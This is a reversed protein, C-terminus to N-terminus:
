WSNALAAAALAATGAGAGLVVLAAAGTRLAASRLYVGSQAGMRRLSTYAARRAVVLEALRTALAGLVCVALVGAEVLPVPGSPRHGDAFRVATVAGVAGTVALVALPTGLRWSDTQLARGALMRVIQPRGAALLGGTAHLLVPVAVAIGLVAVVWGALVAAHSGNTRLGVLEMVTGAVPLTLALVLLLTSPRRQTLDAGDSPLLDASRVATAAALGGLLPVLAILTFTGAAPLNAHTGLDPDLGTGPNLELWHARLVLFGGLALLAGLACALAVEGALLLRMRVPGAGAAVLGAMREPRQLPLARAWAASLYGLSALAPLCWVLRDVAPGVAGPSSLALGLARLLLAAVTGSAAVTLLWRTLDLPSYGRALRLYPFM